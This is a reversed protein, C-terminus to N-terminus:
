ESGELTLMIGNSVALERILDACASHGNEKTLRIAERCQETPFGVGGSANWLFEIMDLRGYEAAAEIPWRGSVTSPSTSIEACYDLLLAAINCNGSMAACQLATRGHFTAPENNVDAGNQILLKVMDLSGQEAAAQIPTRKIGRAAKENVQAGHDILFQVLLQNKTEIAKLLPTKHRRFGRKDNDTFAVGNIDCRFLNEALAKTVHNPKDHFLHPLLKDVNSNQELFKPVVELPIGNIGSFGNAASFLLIRCMEVESREQSLSTAENNRYDLRHNPLLTDLTQLTLRASAANANVSKGNANAMATVAEFFFMMERNGAGSLLRCGSPSHMLQLGKSLLSREFREFPLDDLFMSWFSFQAINNLQPEFNEFELAPDAINVNLEFRMPSQAVQEHSIIAQAFIQDEVNIFQNYTMLPLTDPLTPSEIADPRPVVQASYNEVQVEQEAFELIEDIGPSQRQFPTNERAADIYPTWNGDSDQIEIAVGGDASNTARNSREEIRRRKRPHHDGKPYRKARHIRDMPVPHGAIMVRVQIGRSFLNDIKPLIVEWEDRKINKRANWVRLQAEFQSITAVFGFDKEMTQVLEDGSLDSTLYLSLITEKHREWDESPIKRTKSAM